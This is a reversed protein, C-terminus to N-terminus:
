LINLSQYTLVFDRGVEERSFVEKFFRDIEDPRM